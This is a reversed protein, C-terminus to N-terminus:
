CGSCAVIINVSMVHLLCKYGYCAIFMNVGIVHLLCMLFTFHKLHLLLAVM